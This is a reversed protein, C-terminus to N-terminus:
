GRYRADGLRTPTPRSVVPRSLSPRRALLQDLTVRSAGEATEGRLAPTSPKIGNAGLGSAPSIGWLALAAQVSYELTMDLTWTIERNSTVIPRGLESEPLWLVPWFHRYRVLGVGSPLEAPYDYELGDGVTVTTASISVAGNATTYERVPGLPSEVVVPDGDALAGSSSFASFGNGLTLLSTDGRDWSAVSQAACWTKSHNRSFGIVGGRNLHSQLTMLARETAADPFLQLVVRVRFVERLFSHFGVGGAVASVRMAGPLEDLAALQEGLDIRSLNGTETPYWYISPDSTGM